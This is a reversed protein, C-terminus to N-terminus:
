AGETARSRANRRRAWDPTSTRIGRPTKPRRTGHALAPQPGALDKLCALCKGDSAAPNAECITCM